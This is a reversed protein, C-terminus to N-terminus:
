LNAVKFEMVTGTNLRMSYNKITNKITVSRRVKSPTLSSNCASNNSSTRCYKVRSRAPYIEYLKFKFRCIENCYNPSEGLMGQLKAIFDRSISNKATICRYNQPGLSFISKPGQILHM